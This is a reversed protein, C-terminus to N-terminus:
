LGYKTCIIHKPLLSCTGRTVSMINTQIFDYQIFSFWTKIFSIVSYVVPPSSPLDCSNLTGNFYVLFMNVSLTEDNSPISEVNSVNGACNDANKKKIWEKFWTSKKWSEAAMECLFLEALETECCRLNNRGGSFSRWLIQIPLSWDACKASFQMQCVVRDSHILCLSWVGYVDLKVAHRLELHATSIEGGHLVRQWPKEHTVSGESKVLEGNISAGDVGKKEKKKVFFLRSSEVHIWILHKSM